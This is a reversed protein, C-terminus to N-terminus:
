EQQVLALFRLNLAQFDNGRDIDRWSYNWDRGDVPRFIVRYPDNHISWFAVTRVVSSFVFPTFGYNLSKHQQLRFTGRATVRENLTNWFLIDSCPIGEAINNINVNNHRLLRGRIMQIEAEVEEQAHNPDNELCIAHFHTAVLFCNALGDYNQLAMENNATGYDFNAQLYSRIADAIVPATANVSAVRFDAMVVPRPNAIVNSLRNQVAELSDSFFLDIKTM